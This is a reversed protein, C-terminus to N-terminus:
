VEVEALTGDAALFSAVGDIEVYACEQSETRLIWEVAAFLEDGHTTTSVIQVGVEVGWSGFGVQRTVSGDVNPAKSQLIKAVLLAPDAEPRCAELALSILYRKPTTTM